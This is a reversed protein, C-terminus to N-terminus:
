LNELQSKNFDNIITTIEPELTSDDILEYFLKYLEITHKCASNYIIIDRRLMSVNVCLHNDDTPAEYFSTAMNCVNWAEVDGFVFYMNEEILSLLQKRNDKVVEYKKLITESTFEIKNLKEFFDFLSRHLRAIFNETRNEYDPKFLSFSDNNHKDYEICELVAEKNNTFWNLIEEKEFVERSTWFSYINDLEQNM